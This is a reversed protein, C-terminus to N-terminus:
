LQFIATIKVYNVYFHPPGAMEGYMRNSHKRLKDRITGHWIADMTKVEGSCLAYHENYYKTGSYYKTM